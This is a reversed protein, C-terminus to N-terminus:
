MTYNLSLRGGDPYITTGTLYSAADSALFVAVSEVEEPEGLRGRPTRAMIRTKAAEPRLVAPRM